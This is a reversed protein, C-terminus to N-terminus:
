FKAWKSSVAMDVSKKIWVVYFLWFFALVLLGKTAMCKFMFFVMVHGWTKRIRRM